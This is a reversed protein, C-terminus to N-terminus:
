DEVVFGQEELLVRALSSLATERDVKEALYDEDFDDGQRALFFKLDNLFRIRRKLHYSDNLNMDEITRSARKVHCRSAYSKPILEGTGTHFTFFREPRDAEVDACPNIYGGPPWKNSKERNCTPCAFIWNTWKYVLEPDKSVPRFHDIDGATEEECYGCLESFARKLDGRFKGWRPTPRSGTRHRYHVVWPQTFQSRVAELGGPEPGRDVWHM